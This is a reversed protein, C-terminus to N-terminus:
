LKPIPASNLVKPVLGPLAESPLVITQIGRDVNIAGPLLSNPVETQILTYPSTDGFKGFAQKAYSAAGEASTSFYKSEIGVPNRFAGSALIDDLEPNMVARYLTTTGEAAFLPLAAAATIAASNEFFRGWVGTPYPGQPPTTPRGLAANVMDEPWHKIIEIGEELYSRQLADYKPGSAELQKSPDLADPHEQRFKAYEAMYDPHVIAYTSATGTGIEAVGPNAPQENSNEDLVQSQTPSVEAPIVYTLQLDYDDYPGGRAPNPFNPDPVPTTDPPPEPENQAQFGTPDTFSLPSNWAYSYANLGEPGAPSVIPDPSIFHATDPKYLRGGMDILRFEDDPTQGTFGITAWKSHPQWVPDGLASPSRRDGFPEYKGREVLVGASTIADPSGLHDPHVLNVTQSSPDPNRIVQAVVGNPGVVNYRRQIPNWEGDTRLEFLAGVDVIRTSPTAEPAANRMLNTITRGGSGDYDFSEKLFAGGIRRSIDRPLGFPTWTYTNDSGSLLNGAGNYTLADVVAGGITLAKLAHPHTTDIVSTYDFTTSPYLKPCPGNPISERLRLNGLDDYHYKWETTSTGSACIADNQTVQWDGLRGLFDYSFVESIPNNLDHDERSHLLGDPDWNYELDQFRTGSSIFQAQITHLQLGFDYGRKVDEQDGFQEETSHGAADRTVQRWITTVHLPDTVDSITRTDGNGAYLCQLRFQGGGGTGPYNLYEVQGLPNYEYSFLLRDPISPITWATTKLRGFNDYDANEVIGEKSVIQAIRGIGNTATDYIFHNRRAWPIGISPYSASAPTEVWEIRGLDDYTCTTDGGVADQQRKVEGFANYLATTTGSDPDTISQLRGLVDYEFSTVMPAPAPRMPPWVRLVPHIITRPLDFHWYEYGISIQRGTAPDVTSRKTVRGKADVDNTTKIGREDTVVSRRGDYGIHVRYPPSTSTPGPRRVDTVRELGDRTYEIFASPSASASTLAFPLSERVLGGLEDHKFETRVKQDYGDATLQLLHGAPDFTSCSMGTAESSQCVAHSRSDKSLGTLSEYSSYLYKREARGPPKLLILRGLVDYQYATRIGNPDDVAQPLGFVADPYNSLSHGLTDTTITPFIQDLDNPDFSLKTVRQSGSGERNISTVNGRADRGFTSTLSFGSVADSEPSAPNPEISVSHPEVSNPEYTLNVTRTLQQQGAPLTPDVSVFQYQPYRSILWSGLVPTQGRSEKQVSSYVIQGSASGGKLPLPDPSTETQKSTVNDFEDFVRTVRNATLTKRTTVRVPLRSTVEEELTASTTQHVKYGFPGPVLPKTTRQTAIEVHRTTDTLSFPGGAALGSSTVPIDITKRSPVDTGVYACMHRDADQCVTQALDFESTTRSFVHNTAEDRVTQTFKGVGLVGRGTRDARADEYKYDTVIRTPTSKEFDSAEVTASKVVWGLSKLCAQPWSCQSQSKRYVSSSGVGAYEYDITRKPAWRGSDISTVLDPLHPTQLYVALNKNDSPDSSDLGVFDLLGDGNFDGVQVLRPGYGGNQSRTYCHGEGVHREISDDECVDAHPTESVRGAGWLPIKLDVVTGDPKLWQVGQGVFLLDARGDQDLDAIRIGQDFYRPESLVIAGTEDHWQNIIQVAPPISISNPPLTIPQRFAAGSNLAVSIVGGGVQSFPSCIQPFQKINSITLSDALGDGNLDVFYRTIEHCDDAPLELTTPIVNAVVSIPNPYVSPSIQLASLTVPLAGSNYVATLVEQQGHGDIDTLYRDDGLRTQVSGAIGPAIPADVSAGDSFSPFPSFAKPPLGVGLSLVTPIVSPTVIADERLLDPLGDGDMDGIMYPIARSLRSKFASLWSGTVLEGQLDFEYSGPSWSTLGYIEYEPKGNDDRFMLVEDKGDGDIDMVRPSYVWDGGVSAPLGWPILIPVYHGLYTASVLMRPGLGTPTGLRLYWDGRALPTEWYNYTDSGILVVPTGDDAYREPARYLVDSLGDGNFDGVVAAYADYLFGIPHPTGAPHHEGDAYTGTNPMRQFDVESSGAAVGGKLFQPVDPVNSWGFTVPDLCQQTGDSSFVCETISSLRDVLRPSSPLYSLSYERFVREKKVHQVGAGPSTPDSVLGDQALIQIKSLLRSKKIAIGARYATRVDNKPSPQYVFRIRRSPPAPAENSGPLPSFGTWRIESPVVEIPGGVGPDVTRDYDIDVYNGFHDEVRDLHWVLTRPDGSSEPSLSTHSTPVPTIVPTGRLRSKSESDRWGFKEILGNSRYVIFYDPDLLSGGVKVLVSSDFEPQLLDPSSLDRGNPDFLPRPILRQGDLCFKDPLGSTSTASYHGDQAPTGWCRSISSLGDLSFHLGLLGNQGVSRYTIALSPQIGKRGQPIWIPMSWIAVGTPTVSFVSADPAAWDDVLKKLPQFPTFIPPTAFAPGSFLFTIVSILVLYKLTPRRNSLSKAWKSWPPNRIQAASGHGRV